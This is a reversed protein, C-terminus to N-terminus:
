YCAAAAEYACGNDGGKDGCFFVGYGGDVDVRWGQTACGECVGDAIDAAIDEVHRGQTIYKGFNLRGNYDM